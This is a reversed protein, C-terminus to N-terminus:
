VPVPTSPLCSAPMARSSSLMTGDATADIGNANFGSTYAIDGTLPIAQASPALEGNPSIGIRYVFQRLSDTFYAGSGTVVVDNVFTSETTLQYSAILAGSETDYVFARGTPGGAVFLRGLKDLEVGIAARGSAAPVLVAGSGTRVDGRYIAGTPISGVYFTGGPAVAIGEPQFGNPLAIKEPFPEDAAPAAVAALAILVAGVILALRRM